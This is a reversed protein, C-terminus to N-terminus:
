SQTTTRQNERAPRGGGTPAMTAAQIAAKIESNIRYNQSKYFDLQHTISKALRECLGWSEKVKSVFEDGEARGKLNVRVGEMELKQEVLTQLMKYKRELTPQYKNILPLWGAVKGGQKDIEEPTLEDMQREAVQHAEALISIRTRGGADREEVWWATYDDQHMRIKEALLEIAKLDVTPNEM